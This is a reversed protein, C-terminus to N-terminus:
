VAKKSDEKYYRKMMEDMDIYADKGLVKMEELRAQTVMQEKYLISIADEFLRSKSKGTLEVLQDMTRISEDSVSFGIKKKTAGM